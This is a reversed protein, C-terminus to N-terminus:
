GSVQLSFYQSHKLSALFRDISQFVLWKGLARNRSYHQPVVCHGNEKKFELLQEYRDNWDARDRVKWIFGLEDLQAKREDTLM